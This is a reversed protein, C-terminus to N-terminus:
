RRARSCDPLAPPRRRPMGAERFLKLMDSSWFEHVELRATAAPDCTPRGGADVAVARHLQSVKIPSKGPIYWTDVTQPCWANPLDGSEACVAVKTVGAPPRFAPIAEAARALNM